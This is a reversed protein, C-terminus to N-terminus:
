PNPDEEEPDANPDAAPDPAPAPPVPSVPPPKPKPAPGSLDLPRGALSARAEDTSIIGAAVLQSLAMAQTPLDESLLKNRDFHITTGRPQWAYSWVDEFDALVPELSTRLIQQYQPASTKYTMGAIPVSFWYADLNFMNAVDILSMKRAEIMQTDTPSWALPVVQTGNPLIAPERVPGSFKAVWQGKAEEAVDQTVQGPAIVAVSPVSSGALTSREYEEEMAVRDLTPLHEEVVGVGRVPFMRDAGRKVHIVDEFPVESGLYFYSAHPDGPWWIITVGFTPLWRVTTPWGDRNRSTVQCVANGDLLYDEVSVQVFWSRANDPDPRDLLRPRSQLDDGRYADIAMQKCMGGYLQLARGVSPIRRATFTDWVYAAGGLASGPPPILSGDRPRTPVRGITWPAVTM